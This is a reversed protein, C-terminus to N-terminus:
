DLRIPRPTWDLGISGISRQSHNSCNGLTNSTGPIPCQTDFSLYNYQYSVFGRLSRGFQRHLGAGVYGDQFKNAAITSGALQVRSNKSYGFDSFFNWVRSISRQVDAHVTDTLSGAFVGNGNTTFRQYNLSVNTKPFHYRLSIRGAAGIHNVSQHVTVFTDTICQGPQVQIPVGLFSCETANSDIHTFEPGAGIMFDMRGSIRHGYMAQIVNAHFATGVTSFDFGQYGYSLAVQDKANLTRDYGIQATEERSGVFDVNVPSGTVSSNLDGYFHVLGYGAMATIASKPSLDEVVDVLGLNTLRPVEGVTIGSGGNFASSTGGFAGSGLMGSGLGAFGANYASGGGYAGFGFTGEPLYSFSDRIGMQGRRWTIRNDMDFQQLQELGLGVRAYDAVGGIYDVAVDYNKWLKQLTLSGLGRTVIGTSSGGLNSGVNSDVSESFHLGPLLFSEPAAHPELGPQDLGSIPPNDSVPVTPTEQGFAPVPATAPPPTTDDQAWAVSTALLALTLTLLAQGKRM